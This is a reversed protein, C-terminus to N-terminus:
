VLSSVVSAEEPSISEPKVNFALSPEVTTDGAVVRMFDITSPPAVTAAASALTCAARPMVSFTSRDVKLGKAVSLM